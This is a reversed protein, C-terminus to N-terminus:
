PSLSLIGGPFYAINGKLGMESMGLPFIPFLSYQKMHIRVILNTKRDSLPQQVYETHGNVQSQPLIADTIVMQTM